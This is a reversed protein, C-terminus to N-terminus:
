YPITNNQTLAESLEHTTKKRMDILLKSLIAPQSQPSLLCRALDILHCASEVKQWFLRLYASCDLDRFFLTTPIALLILSIAFSIRNSIACQRKIGIPGSAQKSAQKSAHM